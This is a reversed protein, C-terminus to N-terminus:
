IAKSESVERGGISTFFLKNNPNFYKKAKDQTAKGKNIRMAITMPKNGLLLTYISIQKIDDM